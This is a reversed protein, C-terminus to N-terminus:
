RKLSGVTAGIWSGASGTRLGRRLGPRGHPGAGHKGVVLLPTWAGPTFLMESPTRRVAFQCHWLVANARRAECHVSQIRWHGTPQGWPLGELIPHDAVKNILCPQPCNRRDDSTGMVVPLVEALPSRHYEGLRGYFTDGAARDDAAGAGEAVRAVIRPRARRAWGSPPM